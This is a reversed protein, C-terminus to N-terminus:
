ERSGFWKKNIEQLVGSEDLALIAINIRERLPSGTPLAIGYSQHEFLPGILRVPSRNSQNITYALM